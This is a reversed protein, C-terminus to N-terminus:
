DLGMASNNNFTNIQVVRIRNNHLLVTACENCAEPGGYHSCSFVTICRNHFNLRYGELPVEHARIMHSIRNSVSFMDFALENYFFATGRRQNPLYGYTYLQTLMVERPTMQMSQQQQQTGSDDQSKGRKSNRRLSKNQKQQAALMNVELEYHERMKRDEIPDSWLIEWLIDQQVDPNTICKPVLQNIQTIPKGLSSYPIGGHCCFIANDVRACCPLRDFVRITMEYLRKGYDYGYKTVVEQEYGYQEHMSRVEHNGRLLTVKNPALLKLCFLYLVCEFSWKGRDVYDGLFLYNNGFLFPVSPWLRSELTMLDELNGHIDGIVFVPSRVEVMRNEEEFMMAVERGIEEADTIFKAQMEMPIVSFLGRFDQATGKHNACFDRITTVLINPLSQTNFVFECSRYDNKSILDFQSSVSALKFESRKFENLWVVNNAIRYPRHHNSEVCRSCQRNRPAYVEVIQSFKYKAGYIKNMRRYLCAKKVTSIIRTGSRCLSHTNQLVQKTVAENFTSPDIYTIVKPKAPPEEPSFPAVSKIRSLTTKKPKIKPRIKNLLGKARNTAQDMSEKPYLDHFLETLEDVNM